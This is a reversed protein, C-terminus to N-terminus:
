APPQLDPRLGSVTCDRRAPVVAPGDNDKFTPRQANATSREDRIKREPKRTGTKAEDREGDRGDEGL